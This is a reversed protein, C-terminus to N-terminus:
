YVVFTLLSILSLEDYYLSVYLFQEVLKWEQQYAVAPEIPELEDMCVCICNGFHKVGLDWQMRLTISYM